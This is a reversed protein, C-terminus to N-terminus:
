NIQKKPVTIFMLIKITKFAKFTNLATQTNLLPGMTFFFFFFVRRIIAYSKLEPLWM